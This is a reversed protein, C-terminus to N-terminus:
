NSPGIYYADGVAESSSPFLYLQRFETSKLVSSMARLAFGLDKIYVLLKLMSFMQM